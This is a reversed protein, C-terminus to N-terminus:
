ITIIYSGLVSFCSAERHGGFNEPLSSLHIIRIVWPLLRDAAHHVNSILSWVEWIKRDQLYLTHRAGRKITKVRMRYPARLGQAEERDHTVTYSPDTCSLSFSGGQYPNGSGIRVLVSVQFTEMLRNIMNPICNASENSAEAESM